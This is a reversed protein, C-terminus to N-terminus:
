DERAPRWAFPTFMRGHRPEIVVTKDPQHRYAEEYVRLVEFRGETPMSTIDTNWPRLTAPKQDDSM